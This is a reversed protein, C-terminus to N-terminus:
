SRKESIKYGLESIKNVVMDVLEFRQANELLETVLVVDEALEDGGNKRAFDAGCQRLAEYLVDREVENFIKNM